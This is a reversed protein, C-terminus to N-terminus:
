YLVAALIASVVLLLASARAMGAGSGSGSGDGTNCGDTDCYTTCTEINDVTVCASGPNLETCSRKFSVFSGGRTVKVVTCYFLPLGCSTINYNETLAAECTSNANYEPGCIYCNIGYSVTMLCALSVLLFLRAAM